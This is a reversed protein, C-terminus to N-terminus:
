QTLEQDPGHAPKTEVRVSLERGNKSELKEHLRREFAEVRICTADPTVSMRAKAADLQANDARAMVRQFAHNEPHLKERLACSAENHEKVETELRARLEADKGIAADPDALLRAKQQALHEHKQLDKENVLREREAPSRSTQIRQDFREQDRKFQANRQESMVAASIADRSRDAADSFSRPASQSAAIHPSDHTAPVVSVAAAVQRERADRALGFGRDGADSYRETERRRQEAFRQDDRREVETRRAEDRTANEDRAADAVATAGDRERAAAQQQGELRKEAALTAEDRQKEEHAQQERRESELEQARANDLGTTLSNNM